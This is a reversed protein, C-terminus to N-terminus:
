SQHRRCTKMRFYDYRFMQVYKGFRPLKGIYFMMQLWTLFCGVAATHWQWLAMSFEEQFPDVHFTILLFSIILSLDIYTDWKMFYHKPSTYFKMTENIVYILTFIILLVWSIRAIVLKVYFEEVMMNPSPCPIRLDWRFKYLDIISPDSWNFKYGEIIDNDHPVCISGFVLLSYTTYVVSYIFHTMILFFFHLYKIQKWKLHLFAESLPHKLLSKYPSKMLELFITIDQKQLSYIDNSLKNFDIKVKSNMESMGGELKLGSDLREEFAKMCHPVKRNIFHLASLDADNKISLDAGQSILLKVRSAKEGIAANHLATNGHSNQVDLKAGFKILERMCVTAGHSKSSSCVFLPTRGDEDPTNILELNTKSCHELLVVLADHNCGRSALHLSTMKHGNMRSVEAGHKLLVRCSAVYGAKAAVHLASERDKDDRLSDVFGRNADLLLEAIEHFDHEVAVHLATEHFTKTVTEVKKQLLYKVMKINNHIVSHHLVSAGNRTIGNNINGGHALLLDLLETTRSSTVAVSHMPTTKESEDWCNPDASLSLLTQVCTVAEKEVALHLTTQGCGLVKNIDGDLLDAMLIANDQFLCSDKIHIKVFFYISIKRSFKLKYKSMLSVKEITAQVVNRFDVVGGSAQKRYYYEFIIFLFSFM